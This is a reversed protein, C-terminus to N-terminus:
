EAKLAAIHYMGAAVETIGTLGSFRQPVPKEPRQKLTWGWVWLTGDAKLAATQNMGTAVAVAGNLDSIKTPVSKAVTSGDGLQGYDNYGWAWVTGDKKVVVTHGGGAAIKSVGTLGKVETQLYRDARLTGNGIQGYDNWGWAWVTGDKKLAVSHHQGAAVAVAGALDRVKVPKFSDDTSGDGLQGKLNWGWAWVTGDRKVALTHYWGAAIAVVDTLDRVQIPIRSDRPSGIGLQGYYNRGWTWVTGDKKLAVSHSWGAAIATVNDLNKVIVPTLSDKTSDNGLQGKLNRGWAWVTGDSKLALTHEVGAAIGTVGTLTSVQVLSNKNMTTGDGLQGYDNLGGTWVTGRVGVAKVSVCSKQSKPSENGAADYASVAFCVSIGLDPEAQAASTSPVSKLYKDERYIKYGTVGVNDTSSLWSLDVQTPSTALATLGAPSTPPITDGETFTKACAEESPKSENGATDFASVSYCYRTDPTLRSHEASTNRSTKLLAGRYYINYGEVGKDDKAPNWTPGIETSSVAVAQLGTPASPPMDIAAPLTKACSENSHPSQRRDMDFAIVRFCYTTGPALGTVTLTETKVSKIKGGDQYVEYGAVGREAKSASWSLDIQTQSAAKASLVPATPPKVEVPPPPPVARAIVTPKPAPKPPAPRGTCVEESSQSENGAEDLASVTFCYDAEPNLGSYFTGPSTVSELYAKGQYVRYEVVAKDDRSPSWALRLEFPSVSNIGLGAPATPPQIDPAEKKCGRLLFLALGVAVLLLLIIIIVILKRNKM